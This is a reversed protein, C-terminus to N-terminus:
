KKAKFFYGVPYTLNYNKSFFQFFLILFQCLLFLINNLFPIKHIKISLSSYFCTFIGGAIVKVEIDIFGSKKLGEILADSTYRFIM